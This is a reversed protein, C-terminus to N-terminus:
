ADLQKALLNRMSNNQKSRSPAVYYQMFGQKQSTSRVPRLRGQIIKKQRTGGPLWTRGETSQTRAFSLYPLKTSFDGVASNNASATTSNSKQIMPSVQKEGRCVPLNISSPSECILM